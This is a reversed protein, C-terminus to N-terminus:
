DRLWCGHASVRDLAVLYPRWRPELVRVDDAVQAALLQSAIGVCRRTAVVILARSVLTTAVVYVVALAPSLVIVPTPPYARSNQWTACGCHEPQLSPEVWITTM